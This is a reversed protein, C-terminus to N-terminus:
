ICPHQMNRIYKQETAQGSDILELAIADYNEAVAISFPTRDQNDFVEGKAGRAILYKVVELSGYSAATHLLTSGDHSIKDADLNLNFRRVEQKKRRFRSLFQRGKVVSKPPVMELAHILGGATMIEARSPIRYPNEESYEVNNIVDYFLIWFAYAESNKDLYTILHVLFDGILPGCLKAHQIWHTTAYIL